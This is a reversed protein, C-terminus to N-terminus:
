QLDFKSYLWYADVPFFSLTSMSFPNGFGIFQQKKYVIQVKKKFSLNLM